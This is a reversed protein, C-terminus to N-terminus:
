TANSVGGKMPGKLSTVLTCFGLIHSIYLWTTLWVWPPCSVTSWFTVNPRIPGDSKQACIINRWRWVWGSSLSLGGWTPLNILKLARLSKICPCVCVRLHHRMCQAESRTTDCELTHRRAAVWPLDSDSLLKMVDFAQLYLRNSSPSILVVPCCCVMFRLM